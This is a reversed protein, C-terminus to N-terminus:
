SPSVQETKRISDDITDLIRAIQRQEPLPPLDVPFPLLDARTIHRMTTGHSQEGLRVM